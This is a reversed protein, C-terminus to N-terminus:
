PAFVLAPLHQSGMTPEFLMGGWAMSSRFGESMEGHIVRKGGKMDYDNLAFGTRLTDGPAHAPNGLIEWPILCEIEYGQPTLKGTCPIKKTLVGGNGGRGEPDSSRMAYSNIELGHENIGGVIKYLDTLRASKSDYIATGFEFSDCLWIWSGVGNPDSYHSDDTVQVALILGRNNYRLHIRGSLDAPGKWDRADRRFHFCEPRDLKFAEGTSYKSFDGDIKWDDPVRAIGIFSLGAEVSVPAQTPTELWASCPYASDRQAELGAPDVPFITEVVQGAPITVLREANVPQEQRTAMHTLHLIGSLPTAANNRVTAIIAPGAPHNAPQARLQIETVPRFTAETWTTARVQQAADRLDAYIRVHDRQSGAPATIQFVADQGAAVTAAAPQCQWDVSLRLRVEGAEAAHLKVTTPVAPALTLDESGFALDSQNVPAANMKPGQWSVLIPYASLRLVHRQRPALVIARGYMDVVELAVPQDFTLAAQAPPTN